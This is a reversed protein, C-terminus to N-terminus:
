RLDLSSGPYEVGVPELLVSRSGAEVRGAVIAKLGLNAALRVLREGFSPAVMLALGAGMNLTAYAEGPSLEAREAIFSLVEPVEPLVELRYNFDRNARMLKRFGHGTVHSAYHVPFGSSFLRDILPAYIHGARLVAEGFVRGSPLVTRWGNDTKAAVARALSAGNQQLGNSEVLVIEDGAAIERGLLPQRGEPVRGLASAALDVGEESILGALTPSEGGGWAAGAAVCGRAFGAVLSEHRTGSFFSASGTAFYANVVLPLAGTASLDNVAAAVTDYGVEAFCDVGAEREYEFAITSKTGLCELVFGYTAEPTRLITAQEGFSAEDVIAGRPQPVRATARAAALAARKAGDLTEYDVGAQAYRDPPTV